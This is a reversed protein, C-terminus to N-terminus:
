EEESCSMAVRDLSDFISAREVDDSSNCEKLLPCRTTTEAGSGYAGAFVFYSGIYRPLIYWELPARSMRLIEWVELWDVVLFVVPPSSRDVLSQAFKDFDDWFVNTDTGDLHLSSLVFSLVVFNIPGGPLSSTGGPGNAGFYQEAM